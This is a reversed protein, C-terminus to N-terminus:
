FYCRSSKRRGVLVAAGVKDQRGQTDDLWQALVLIHRGIRHMKVGMEGAM